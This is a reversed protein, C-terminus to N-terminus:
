YDIVLPAHDSFKEAKYISTKKATAAIGPTAIHYDIRWGVNKTYAQGRNSWWTYCTEEAGPELKRYVDVYGVKDFLNTLWAREEPLFGSNKVNGKWNKLDIEHHAINVDGCLVIERGSKKLKILHPLFSDISLWFYCDKLLSEIEKLKLNKRFDNVLQEEDDLGIQIIHQGSLLRMLESWWPYSKANVLGDHIKAPHPHILIM